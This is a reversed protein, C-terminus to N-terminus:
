AGAMRIVCLIFRVEGESNKHGVAVIDRAVGNIDLNATKVEGLSSIVSDALDIVTGAFAQDRCADSVNQGKAYQNRLGILDELVKGAYCVKKDRDLLLIGDSFAVDSESVARLYQEDEKADSDTAIAGAMRSSGGKVRSVAFNVITALNELEPLKAEATVTIDEGKLASDLQETMVALPYQTMKYILFFSLLSMLLAFLAAEAMPEYTNTMGAELRFTAIVIAQLARDNTEASYMYIPQAVIWIDGTQHLSVREEKGQQIKKIALLSYDDTISRNFFKPPALVSNSKPDIVYANLIGKEAETAEVTLRTFDSAKSLVRYNERVAQSLIAHARGLAEEEVTHKGWRLIPIVSLIVSLVLSVALISGLVMRWDSNRLIAYFPLLVKEDVLQLFKEQPKAPEAIEEAPEQAMALNGQVPPIPRQARPASAAIRLKYDVIRVEDSPEIRQKKILIGNIFVGNASGLDVIAAKNGKVVLLAHQKSVQSSSLRIECESSRGIRYTGEALDHKSVVAGNQVLEFKL